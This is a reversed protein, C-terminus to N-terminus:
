LVGLCLRTKPRASNISPPKSMITSLVIASGAANISGIYIAEIPNANVKPEAAPFASPPKACCAPVADASMPTICIDPAATNATNVWCNPKAAGTWTPM